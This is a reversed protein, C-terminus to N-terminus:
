LGEPLKKGVRVLTLALSIICCFGARLLDTRHEFGGWHLCRDFDNGVGEGLFIVGLIDLHTVKHDPYLKRFYVVM